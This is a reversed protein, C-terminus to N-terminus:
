EAIGFNFMSSTNRERGRGRRGKRREEKRETHM